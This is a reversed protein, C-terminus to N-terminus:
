AYDFVDMSVSKVPRSAGHLMRRIKETTERSFVKEDCRDCVTSPIHEVLIHRDDINFVEEIFIKESKNSGCV